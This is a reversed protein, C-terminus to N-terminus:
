GVGVHYALQLQGLHLIGLQLLVQLRQQVLSLVQNLLPVSVFALHM